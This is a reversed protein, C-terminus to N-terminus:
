ISKTANAAVRTRPALAANATLWIGIEEEDEVTDAVVDEVPCEVIDEVPVAM